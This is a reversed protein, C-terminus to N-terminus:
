LKYAEVWLTKRKFTSNLGHANLLMFKVIMQLKFLYALDNASYVETCSLTIVGKHIALSSQPLVDTPRASTRQM